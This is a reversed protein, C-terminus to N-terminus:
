WVRRKGRKTKSARAIKVLLVVLAAEMATAALNVPEVPLRTFGLLLPFSAFRTVVWALVLGVNLLVGFRVTWRGPGFLLSATLMGQCVAVLLIFSGTLPRAAFQGPLVWLHALQSGFALAAAYRLSRDYGARKMGAM